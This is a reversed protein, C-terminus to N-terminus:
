TSYVGSLEVMLTLLSVASGISLVAILHCTPNLEDLYQSSEREDADEGLQGPQREFFIKMLMRTYVHRLGDNNTFGLEKFQWYADSFLERYVSYPRMCISLVARDETIDSQKAIVEGDVEIISAYYKDMEGCSAIAIAVDRRGEVIWMQRAIEIERDYRGSVNCKIGTRNMQEFERCWSNSDNVRFGELFLTLNANILDQWDYFEREQQEPVIVSTLSDYYDNASFIGGVSLLTFLLSEWFLKPDRPNDMGLLMKFISLNSWTQGDFSGLWRCLHILAMITPLAALCIVLDRLHQEVYVDYTVPTYLNLTQFERPRLYNVHDDNRDRLMLAMPFTIEWDDRATVQYTFNLCQSLYVGLRSLRGRCDVRAHRKRAYDYSEFNVTFSNTTIKRKALNRTSASMLEFWSTKASLLRYRMKVLSFDSSVATLDGHCSSARVLLLRRRIQKNNNSKNNDAAADTAIELIDLNRRFDDFALYVSRYRRWKKATVNIILLRPVCTSQGLTRLVQGYLLRVLKQRLARAYNVHSVVCILLANASASNLLGPQQRSKLHFNRVEEAFNTRRYSKPWNKFGERISVIPMLKTLEEQLKTVLPNKVLRKAIFLNCKSIGSLSSLQRSLLKINKENSNYKNGAGAAIVSFYCCISAIKLILLKM